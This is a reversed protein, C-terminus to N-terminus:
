QDEFKEQCVLCRTADPYLMLRKEPIAGGCDTCHGYTGEDIMALAKRIRNYEEIEADQLSIKLNELSLSQVQDGVDQGLELGGKDEYLQALQEELEAKRELLKKRAANLQNADFSVKKVENM